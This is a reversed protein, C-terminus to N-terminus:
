TDQETPRVLIENVSVHPPQTVAYLIAEAIDESKLPEMTAIWERIAQKTPAHTIHDTLETAVVGPEIVTVRIHNRTEQKRLGESFAGVAFKTASYVAAYVSTQRGAVSSVNVIHGGGQEKMIPLVAHTAVMLGWVNIDLMRRWDRIDAGDVPGLLMVGANNVLIDVRGWAEQTRRVMAYVQEAEAVDTVSPLAEGGEARIREALANLREVRRAAITVRAGEAALRLATAEGIGSSAGTVIAVKGELSKAM